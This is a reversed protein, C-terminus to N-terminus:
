TILMSCSSRVSAVLRQHLAPNRELIHSATCESVDVSQSATSPRWVKTPRRSILRTM